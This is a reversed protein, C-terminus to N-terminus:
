RIGIKSSQKVWIFGVCAMDKGKTGLEVCSKDHNNGDGDNPAKVFWQCDRCSLGVIGSLVADTYDKTADSLDQTDLSLARLRARAGPEMDKLDLRKTILYDRFPELYEDYIHIGERRLLQRFKKIDGSRIIKSVKRIAKPQGSLLAKLEGKREELLEDLKKKM